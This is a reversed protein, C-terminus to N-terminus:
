AARRRWRLAALVAGGVVGIIIVLVVGIAAAYGLRGASFAEQYLDFDVTYTSYGPGGHTLTYILPFFATFSAIVILVAWFEIVPLLQWFIVHRQVQWPSAGDVKAADVQESDLNAFGSLFLLVGIGFTSWIIIGIVVPLTLSPNNLWDRALFGLGISGLASNFPGDPKLVIGYYVGIVVPSLVVPLFFAFRFLKWGVVERHLAWAVGYPLGIWIPMAGVIALNHVLAEKFHKDHALAEFNHLGVAQPSSLGDWSTFSLRVADGAPYVMLWALLVAAPLLFLLAPVFGDLRRRIPNRWRRAPGGSPGGPMQNETVSNLPRKRLKKPPQWPM